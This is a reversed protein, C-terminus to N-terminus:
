VREVPPTGFLGYPRSLLVLIMVVYPAVAAFDSGLFGPAYGSSMVEVVGITIGGVVAGPPSDLGGLIVAPFARLAVDGLAPNVSSPFGALFMGGVAAIGGAIAWTLAYVRRVPVGVAMAAEEDAATARMALGYRSFRDFAFFLALILGTCLVTWIRVWNFTVGGVNVASAGWPDGLIRANGGFIAPIASNIVISLGITIMVLVFVPEGLVRRLVMMQFVAGGAALLAIAAIVALAFPLNLGTALVSVLYAGVLLLSGQAFNIVKSARYVVTFGLAVLAYICGLAIGQFLLQLFATM